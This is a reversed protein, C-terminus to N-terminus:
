AAALLADMAEIAADLQADGGTVTVSNEVEVDPMVGVGHYNEGLPPNYYAVTVTVASGDQFAYVRQMVGKGYTKKGVITVDLDVGDMKEYDRLSATFIESASATYENTIVVMPLDVKHGDNGSDLKVLPAGKYQYSVVPLGDDVLYGVMEVVADLMGGLNSRLDFIIGDVEALLLADIATKFDDATKANFTMIEIYGYGTNEITSYIVSAEGVANRTPTLTLSEGNRLVKIEVTTGAVGAIKNVTAEYGIESALAGGVSVIVDGRLFGAAEAPSGNLVSVIYPAGDDSEKIRIGIGVFSSNGSMESSFDEYASANRYAAYDDGFSAMYCTLLADTVATRDNLDIDDYFYELFLDACTSAMERKSPLEGCYYSEVCNEVAAFKQDNFTPFGWAYLYKAVSNYETTGDGVNGSLDDKPLVARDFFSLLSCSSLSFILLLAVFLCSLRSIVKKKLFKSKQM